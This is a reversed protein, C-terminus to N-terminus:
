KDLLDRSRPVTPVVVARMPRGLVIVSSSHQAHRLYKAAASMRGGRSIAWAASNRFGDEILAEAALVVQEELRHSPAPRRAAARGSSGGSSAWLTNARPSWECRCYKAPTMGSPKRSSEGMTRGRWNQGPEEWPGHQGGPPGPPGAPRQNPPSPQCGPGSSHCGPEQDAEGVIPRRRRGTGRAGARRTRSSLSSTSTTQFPNCLRHVIWAPKISPLRNRSGWSHQLMSTGRCGRM